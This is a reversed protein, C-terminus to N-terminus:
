DISLIRLAANYYSISTQCTRGSPAPSFPSFCHFQFARFGFLIKPRREGAFGLRAVLVGIVGRLRFFVAILLDRANELLRRAVLLLVSFDPELKDLADAIGRRVELRRGRALMVLPRAHIGPERLDRPLFAELFDRLEELLDGVDLLLMLCPVIQEQRIDLLVFNELLAVLDDPLAQVAAVNAFSLFRRLNARDAFM